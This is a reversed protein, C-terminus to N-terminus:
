SDKKQLMLSLKFKHDRTEWQMGGYYKEVCNRINRMGIGHETVNEKTTAPLETSMNGQLYGSFGNEIEIWIFHERQKTSLRIFRREEPEAVCAQLANELGNNLIIALDFANIGCGKPFLFDCTTRIGKEEALRMWRNVVVDTVPNGTLIQLDLQEVAAYLGNLYEQLAARNDPQLVKANRLMNEVDTMYNKMDHKVHRIGEYLQEMEQIHEEMDEAQKRYVLLKGKEEHEKELQQLVHLSRLISAICLLCVVPIVFYLEPNQDLLSELQKNKISFLTGRLFVSIGIGIMCPMALYRIEQSGPIHQYRKFERHYTYYVGALLAIQMLNLVLPLWVAYGQILRLYEESSISGAEFLHLLFGNFLNTIISSIVYMILRALEDLAFYVAALYALLKLSEKYICVIFLFSVTSYLVFGLISQRSDTMVRESGYILQQVPPLWWISMRVIVYQLMIVATALAQHKQFLKRRHPLMVFMAALWYGKLLAHVIDIVVDFM